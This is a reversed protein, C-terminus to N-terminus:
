REVPCGGEFSYASCLLRIDDRCRFYADLVRPDWQKGGGRRFIEDIREVPMGKRYPRDSGMADYGDAVALVRALLPIDEGALRDPYGSGDFNEHHSRVGPLVHRLNKLGSLINYGVTPHKKVQEFEEDTLAGPKRLIRDDVGIKGIDHLLGSLHITRLEDDPLGMEKGVRRAILAVRESHGRTYPDKADLTSVFSRVFGLLLDNQERLLDINRVHTGLITAITGLFNAEVTGFERGGHMNASVIWGFRTKGERIPVAILNRLRPFDATPASGDLHNRVLPRSWDHSEFRGLLRTVADADFPLEGRSLVRPDDGPTELQILHGEGDILEPMRDLCLTALDAPGRSIQLNRTLAHLLTVEEYTHDLQESLQDVHAQNATATREAEIEAVALRLLAALPGPSCRPHEAAWRDFRDQSWGARAAGIVLDPPTPGGGAWQYGLGVYRGGASPLPVAYCFFGPSVPVVTPESLGQLRGRVSEPVFPFLADEEDLFAQGIEPEVCFMPLGTRESIRKMVGLPASPARVGAAPIFSPQSVVVTM